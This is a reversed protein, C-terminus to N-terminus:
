FHRMGPQLPPTCNKLDPDIEVHLYLSM